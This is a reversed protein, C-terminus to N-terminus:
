NLEYGKKEANASIETLEKALSHLNSSLLEMNISKGDYNEVYSHIEYLWTICHELHSRKKNM